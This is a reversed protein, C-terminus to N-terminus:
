QSRPSGNVKQLLKELADLKERVEDLYGESKSFENLFFAGLAQNLSEQAHHFFYGCRSIGFQPLKDQVVRYTTRLEELRKSSQELLISISQKAHNVHKEAGRRAELAKATAGRVYMEAKTLEGNLFQQLAQAYLVEAERYQNWAFKDAHVASADNLARRTEDLLHSLYERSNIHGINMFCWSHEDENRITNFSLSEKESVM